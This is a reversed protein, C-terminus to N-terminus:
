FPTKALDDNTAWVFLQLSGDETMTVGGINDIAKFQNFLTAFWGAMEQLDIDPQHLNTWLYQSVLGINILTGNLNKSVERKADRYTQALRLKEEMATNIPMKKRAMFDEPMEALITKKIQSVQSQSFLFWEGSVCFKRYKRHLFCEFRYPEVTEWTHIVELTRPNSLGHTKLRVSLTKSSGIKYFEGDTILYVVHESESAKMSEGKCT